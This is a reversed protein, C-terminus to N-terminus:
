PMLFKTSTSKSCTRLNRSNSLGFPYMKQLGARSINKKINLLKNFPLKKDRAPEATLSIIEKFTLTQFLLVISILALHGSLLCTFFFAIMVVTWITRTVFAQKKKEHEHTVSLPTEKDKVDKAAVNKTNKKDISSDKIDETKKAIDSM